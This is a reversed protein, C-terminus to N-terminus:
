LPQIAIIVIPEGWPALSEFALRFPTQGVSPGLPLQTGPANANAVQIVQGWADFGSQPPEGLVALTTTSDIPTWGDLCPMDGSQTTCGGSDNPARFYNVALNRDPDALWHGKFYAQATLALSSLRKLTRNFNGAQIAYGEIRAWARPKCPLSSNPCLMLQAGAPDFSPLQPDENEAWVVIVHYQIQGRTQAESLAATLRWDKPVGAAALLAANSPLTVGPNDIVAANAEYWDRILGAADSVRLQELQPLRDAQAKSEWNAEALVFTIAVASLIAVFLLLAAGPQWKPSTRVGL